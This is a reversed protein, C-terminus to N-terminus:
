GSGGVAQAFRAKERENAKRMSIIRCARGRPTWALVVLREDLFGVTIFRPEGYDCRADESTVQVGAFVEAARRMDLGREKLTWARKVANCTIRVFM